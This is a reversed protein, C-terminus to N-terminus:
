AGTISTVIITNHAEDLTGVVKVKRGAFPKAAAQDSLRYVTKDDALVYAADHEEVCAHTCEADTPGMRMAAHNLACMEDSITGAFTRTSQAGGLTAAALLGAFLMKLSM